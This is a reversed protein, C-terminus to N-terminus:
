LLIINAKIRIQLGIKDWFFLASIQNHQDFQKAKPSQYNSFFVWEESDIKKLNVFRSDVENSKKNISSIAIAEIYNQNARLAKEYYKKFFIYPESNHINSIDIM